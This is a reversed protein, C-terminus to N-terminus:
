RCGCSIAPPQYSTLEGARNLRMAQSEAQGQDLYNLVQNVVVGSAFLLLASDALNRDLALLQPAIIPWNPETELRYKEYCALCSTKGPEILPTVEVGEEDFVISIHAVDRAQWTQYSAPNVIDNAILVALNVSDFTSSIRSHMQLDTGVLAQAARVRPLGLQASLYGLQSIDQKGVRVQDMSLQKGIGALALAKAITLGTADLSEIFVTKSKRLQKIQQPDLGQMLIRAIEAFRTEVDWKFNRNTIAM